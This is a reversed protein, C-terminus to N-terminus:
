LLTTQKLLMKNRNASLNKDSLFLAPFYQFLSQWNLQRHVSDNLLRSTSVKKTSRQQIDSDCGVQLKAVAMSLLALGQAECKFFLQGIWGVNQSTFPPRCCITLPWNWNASGATQPTTTLTQCRTACDTFCEPMDRLFCAPASPTLLSTTLRVHFWISVIM